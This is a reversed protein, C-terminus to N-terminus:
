QQEKPPMSLIVASEEETLPRGTGAATGGEMVSEVTFGAREYVRARKADHAMIKFGIGPNESSLDEIFSKLTRLSGISPDGETRLLEVWFSNNRENFIVRTRIGAINLEANPGQPVGSRSVNTGTVDETFTEPIKFPLEGGGEARMQPASGPSDTVEGIPKIRARTTKGKRQRISEFRDGAVNKWFGEADPQIDYIMLGEGPPATQSLSDVIRKGQGTGRYEPNLELNIIGEVYREEDAGKINLTSEGVKLFEDGSKTYIHFEIATVGPASAPARGSMVFGVEGNTMQLVLDRPDNFQFPMPAGGEARAQPATGLVRGPQSAAAGFEKQRVYAEPNDLFEGVKMPDITEPMGPFRPALQSPSQLLGAAPGQMPEEYDMGRVAVNWEARRKALIDQMEKHTQSDILNWGNMRLGLYDEAFPGSGMSKQEKGGRRSTEPGYTAGRVERIASMPAEEWAGEYGEAEDIVAKEEASLGRDDIGTSWNYENIQTDLARQISEDNMPNYKDSTLDEFIRTATDRRGMRVAFNYAMVVWERLLDYIQNLINRNTQSKIDRALLAVMARRGFTEALFEAPSTYQYAIGKLENLAQEMPYNTYLTGRLGGPGAAYEGTVPGGPLPRDSSVPALFNDPLLGNDKMKEIISLWDSDEVQRNGYDTIRDWEVQLDTNAKILVMLDKQTKIRQYHGWYLTSILNQTDRAMLGQKWERSVSVLDEPAMWTHLHHFFEHHLTQLDAAQSSLTLIGAAGDYQYTGATAMGKGAGPINRRISLAVGEVFEDPMVDLLMLAIRKQEEFMSPSMKAMENWRRIISLERPTYNAAEIPGTGIARRFNLLEFNKITDALRLRGQIQEPGRNVRTHQTNGMAEGEKVNEYHQAATVGRKGSMGPGAEQRQRWRLAQARGGSVISAGVQEPDIGLRTAIANQALGRPKVAEKEVDILGMGTSPSEERRPASLWQNIVRKPEKLVLQNTKKDIDYFTETLPSKRSFRHLTGDPMVEYRRSWGRVGSIGAIDGGFDLVDGGLVESINGYSTEIAIPYAQRFAPRGVTAPIAPWEARKAKARERASLALWEDQGIGLKVRADEDTMRYEGTKTVQIRHVVPPGKRMQLLQSHLPKAPDGIREVVQVETGTPQANSPLRMAMREKMPMTRGTLESLKGYYEAAEPAMATVQEGPFAEEAPRITASGGLNFEDLASLQVDYESPVRPARGTIDQATEGLPLTTQATAAKISDALSTYPKGPGLAKTGAGGALPLAQVGEGILRGLVGGGM